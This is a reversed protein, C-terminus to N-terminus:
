LDGTQANYDTLIQKVQEKDSLLQQRLAELNEFKKESRIRDIFSICILEDYIFQDFDLIHVEVTLHGDSVTPRYGINGMGDFHQGNWEVRCAFVGSVAILKYESPTAINATPFGITRGIENGHVVKGCITYNYGLLKNAKKVDGAELAARIKTSSVAINEVDQLPVREVEFNFQRGLDYLQKFNGTRNKGFHHDYGVVLKYPKINEVVYNRIFDESSTLSFEKTFEIIILNDIGIETFRKIKKEQNSILKLNQSDINLVMRPHPYFTIVVTEGGIQGAEEVMKQLIAQHGLHIGDFTGITVIANHVPIFDLINNYIKV